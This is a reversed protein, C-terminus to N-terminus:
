LNMSQHFNKDMCLLLLWDQHSDDGRPVPFLITEEQIEFSGSYSEVGTVPNIWWYEAKPNALNQGNEEEQIRIIKKLCSGDLKITKGSYTYCLVWPGAQFVLIREEKQEEQWICDGALMEKAMGANQWHMPLIQNMLRALVTMADSGPAHLADKWPLKVFFAGEGVGNYFQMISNHGYTFGCAGALVSWWAYRRVQQPNWYPEEKLHLGQPIHEYSPEADLIPKREKLKAVEQVYRWNDEGYYPKDSAQKTHSDDWAGLTKQDYRRHGSQFLHFDMWPQEAFYDISSTRGFPHFTVLQNPCAKKLMSGMTNWYEKAENGKTDGGTMWIINPEKGYRETLFQVYSKMQDMSIEKALNGWHPFLAIYLGLSAAERITHDVLKWYSNDTDPKTVDGALFAEEGYANRAPFHHVAVAQIVNFGKQARNRLYLQIEEWKLNHFLLWATDGMWFFLHEAHFLYPCDRKTTLNGYEWPKKVLNDKREMGKEKIGPM